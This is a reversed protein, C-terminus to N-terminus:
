KEIDKKIQKVSYVKLDCLFDHRKQIIKIINFLNGETIFFDVYPLLSSIMIDFVDSQIPKRNDPYFKYFIIYSTCRISPFLNLDISSGKNIISKAFSKNRLGIQNTSARLCFDEIDKKSYKDKKFPYNRKSEIIGDLMEQCGKKWYDTRNIFDSKEIVYKLRQKPTLNPDNIAFPTLAIPNPIIKSEYNNIEKQFISEHGELVASPFISFFDLYKEFLEQRYWLESLTFVSNCIIANSLDFKHNLYEIWEKPSLLFYSLANTDFLCLKYEKGSLEIM